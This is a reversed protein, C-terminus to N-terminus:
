PPAYPFGYLHAGNVTVFLHPYPQGAVVARLAEEREMLM